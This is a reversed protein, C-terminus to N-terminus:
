FPINDEAEGETVNALKEHDAAKQAALKAAMQRAVEAVRDIESDVTPAPQAEKAKEKGNPALHGAEIHTSVRIIASALLYLDKPMQEILNTYKGILGGEVIVKVANNVAMGVTMGNIPRIGTNQVVRTDSLEAQKPKDSSEQMAGGNNYVQVHQFIGAKNVSLEITAKAETQGKPTYSGHKVQVGGFRGNGGKSSHLIVEMGKLPTLDPHEWVSARIKNNTSDSLECTQVSKEGTKTSVMRREYVGSVTVQVADVTMGDSLNKIEPIKLM